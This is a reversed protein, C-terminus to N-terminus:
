ANVLGYFQILDEAEQQSIYGAFYADMVVRKLDPSRLVYDDVPPVKEGARPLDTLPTDVGVRARGHHEPRPTM